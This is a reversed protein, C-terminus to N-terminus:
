GFPVAAPKTQKGREICLRRQQCRQGDQIKLTYPRRHLNARRTTSGGRTGQKM